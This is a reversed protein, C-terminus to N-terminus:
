PQEKQIKITVSIEPELVRVTKGQYDIRPTVTTRDKLDTIDIPMTQLRSFTQIVGAPGEVTIKPPKVAVTSLRYGPAPRGQVIANLRLTRRLLRELRVTIEMPSLHTVAVGAPRRIDDPSLHLRNEGEKTGSLDVTGLVKKSSSIDRLAREQGQLRVEIVAPVDGVVAMGQPINRLELPASLTLESKGKSTVYFWLTMALALSALKIPWNDLLIQRLNM